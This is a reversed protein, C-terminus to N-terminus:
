KVLLMRRTAVWQGMVLRGFYMGSGVPMGQEDRGDWTAGHVGMPQPRDVLVRVRQGLANYVELRVYGSSSLAYQLETSPNFPNPYNSLLPTSPLEESRWGAIAPKLQPGPPPVYVVGPTRWGSALQVDTKTGVIVDRGIFSGAAQAQNGLLLTGHPVYLNARVTSKTGISAAPATGDDGDDQGGGGDDEEEDEDGDGDGGGGGGGGGGKDKKALKAAPPAEGGNVYVLIESAEV